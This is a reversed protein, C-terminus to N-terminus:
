PLVICWKCPRWSCRVHGVCSCSDQVACAHATCGTCQPGHIFAGPQISQACRTGAMAHICIYQALLSTRITAWNKQCAKGHPVRTCWLIILANGYKTFKFCSNPVTVFEAGQALHIGYIVNTSNSILGTTPGKSRSWCRPWRLSTNYSSSLRSCRGLRCSRCHQVALM